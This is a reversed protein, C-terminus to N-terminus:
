TGLLWMFVLWAHGCMGTIRRKSFLHSTGLLLATQDFQPLNLETLFGIEFSCCLSVPLVPYWIGEECVHMHVSESVVYM